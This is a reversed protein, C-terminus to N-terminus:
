SSEAKIVAEQTAFTTSAVPCGVGTGNLNQLTVAAANLRALQSTTSNDLPFTLKVSPNNLVFGAAVNASMENIFIDRNPPCACPILIPQGNTGNIGDCNGTGSPNIGAQIGFEPVLSPDITVNSTAVASTPSPSVASATSIAGSALGCPNSVVAPSSASTTTKSSASAAVGSTLAASSVISATPILTTTAELTSSSSGGDRISHELALWTTSSAPCGIGSGNLNQLTVLCANLRALQSATSNDQPFSVAVSPNNIVYSAAVNANLAEIFSDRNPPCQCPILIPQKNTGDIGECSASGNAKIGATVGFQPVLNPNVSRKLLPRSSASLFVAAVFLIFAFHM